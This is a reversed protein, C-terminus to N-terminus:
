SVAELVIWADAGVVADDRPEAGSERYGSQGQAAEGGELEEWRRFRDVYRDVRGPDGGGGGGPRELEPNGSGSVWGLRTM